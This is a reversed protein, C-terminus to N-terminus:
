LDVKLRSRGPPAISDTARRCALNKLDFYSISAAVAAALGEGM